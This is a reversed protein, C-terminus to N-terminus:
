SPEMAYREVMRITGILYSHRADEGMLTCAHLDTIVVNATTGFMEFRREAGARDM